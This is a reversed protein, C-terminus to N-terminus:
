SEVATRTVMRIPKPTMRGFLSPLSVMPAVSAAFVMESTFTFRPYACRGACRGARRAGRTPPSERRLRTFGGSLVESRAHPVKGQKRRHTLFPLHPHPRGLLPGNQAKAPANRKERRRGATKGPVRKVMAAFNLLRQYKLTKLNTKANDRFIITTHVGTPYAATRQFGGFASAGADKARIFAPLRCM